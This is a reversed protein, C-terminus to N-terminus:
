LIFLFSFLTVAAHLLGLALHLSNETFRQLDDAIRQDPNDTVTKDLQMRYYAQDDLWGHLFRGTMWQRWRIELIQRLYLRYVAAAVSAGALMTFVVAQWWFAAADYQQLADYANNYWLNFRVSLWVSFLTLGIVAALLGIASWKEESKWYPWALDWAQRLFGQKTVVAMM